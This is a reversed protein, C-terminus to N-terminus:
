VSWFIPSGVLDSLGASLVNQSQPPVTFPRQGRRTTLPKIRFASKRTLGPINQQNISRIMRSRPKAADTLLWGELADHYRHVALEYREWSNSYNNAQKEINEFVGKYQAHFNLPNEGLFKPLRHLDTMLNQVGTRGNLPNEYDDLQTSCGFDILAIRKSRPNVLINGGHIDGHALGGVHLKRFERAANLRVILPASSLDYNSSAYLNAAEKYGQMHKLILTEVNGNNLRGTTSNMALPEPVNVGAARAQGLRDFEWDATSEGPDRFLKVGYEQSPHVFYTGFAGAGLQCRPKPVLADFKAPAQIKGMSSGCAAAVEAQRRANIKEQVDWKQGGAIAEDTIRQADEPSLKPNNRPNQPSQRWEDMTMFKHKALYAGGALLGAGLAIKAVTSLQAPTLGVQKKTCKHSRPIFGKGCPKGDEPADHRLHPRRGSGNRARNTSPAELVTRGSETHSIDPGGKGYIGRRRRERNLATRRRVEEPRANIEAQRRVRKRRAKPHTHYYAATSADRRGAPLKPAMVGRVLNEIDRQSFATRVYERGWYHKLITKAIGKTMGTIEKTQVSVPLDNAIARALTECNYEFGTWNYNKNNLNGIIEALEDATPKRRTSDLRQARAYSSGTGQAEELSRLNMRSIDKGKVSKQASPDFITHVGNVKGVYVGYHARQAGALDLTQYLIDGPEFTDYLGKPAKIPPILEDPITKLTIDRTLVGAVAGVVVLGAASTLLQTRREKRLSPASSASLAKSQSPQKKDESKEEEGCKHDRPIYSNGCRIGRRTYPGDIRPIQQLTRPTIM